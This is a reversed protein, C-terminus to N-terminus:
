AAGLREAWRRLASSASLPYPDAAALLDAILRGEPRARAFELEAGRALLYHFRNLDLAEQTPFDRKAGDPRYTQFYAGLNRINGGVLQGCVACGCVRERYEAPSMSMVIQAAGTYSLPHRLPPFYFTLQPRGGSPELGRVEGYMLGHSFGAAGFGRLLSSLIGGYLLGEELGADRLNRLLLAVGTFLAPDDALELASTGVTWVLAAQVGSESVTAALTRVCGVDRLVHPMLPLVAVVPRPRALTATARALDGALKIDSGPDAAGIVSYPAVYAAPALQGVFLLRDMVYQAGDQAWVSRLREEQFNLVNQCFRVIAEDGKLGGIGGDRLPDGSLGGVGASYKAWLRNYNRKGLPEGEADTRTYWASRDFRYTVPDILFPKGTQDLFSACADPASEVLNANLIFGDALTPPMQAYFPKDAHQELRLWLRPARGDFLTGTM